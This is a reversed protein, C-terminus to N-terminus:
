RGLERGRKVAAAVARKMLEELGHADMLIKLAAETTGGPSTVEKRLESAGRQDVDLLAGAGSVTARALAAATADDLGEARGAAALAEVMLFVYAPGSGSVATVADMLGEQGLWLTPGLASMLAEALTRDTKGLKAAGYLATIGHGIAGPTNPMARVIRADAGASNGLFGTTIGAAISLILAGTKGVAALLATEQKLVQPKLALVVADYRRAEFRDALLIKRDTGFARIAESPQPEVVHIASFRGAGLWGKVLAAGMRGAGILLVEGGIQPAPQM